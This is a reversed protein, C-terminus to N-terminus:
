HYNRGMTSLGLSIKGSRKMEKFMSAKEEATDEEGETEEVAVAM